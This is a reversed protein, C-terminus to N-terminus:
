RHMQWKSVAVLGLYFVGLAIAVFATGVPINVPPFIFYHLLAAVGWCFGGVFLALMGVFAANGIRKRLARRTAAPWRGASLAALDGSITGTTNDLRKVAHLRM